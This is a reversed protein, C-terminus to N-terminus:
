AGSPITHLLLVHLAFLACIHIRTYMHTNTHTHTHARTHTYISSSGTKGKTVFFGGGPLSGVVVMVVGDAVCLLVLVAGLVWLGVVAAGAVQVVVAVFWCSVAPGALVCDADPKM